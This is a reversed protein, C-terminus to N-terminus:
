CGNLKPEKKILSTQSSPKISKSVKLVYHKKRDGALGLTPFAKRPGLFYKVSLHNQRSLIKLLAACSAAQIMGETM